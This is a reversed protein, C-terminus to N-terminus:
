EILNSQLGDWRIFEYMIGGSTTSSKEQPQSLGGGVAIDRALVYVCIRDGIIECYGSCALIDLINITSIQKTAEIPTSNFIPFSNEKTLVIQATYVQSRFPMFM